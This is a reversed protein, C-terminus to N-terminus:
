KSIAVKRVPRIPLKFTPNAKPIYSEVGNDSFCKYWANKADRETSTWYCQGLPGYGDVGAYTENIKKQADFLYRMEELSPLWWKGQNKKWPNADTTDKLATAKDQGYYTLRYYEVCYRAASKNSANKPLKQNIIM